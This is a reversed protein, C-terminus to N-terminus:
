NNANTPNTAFTSGTSPIPDPSTDPLTGESHSTIWSPDAYSGTTVVGNTVSGASTATAANGSISGNATGTWSVTGANDVKFFTSSRFLTTYPFLTSRPPRRIM